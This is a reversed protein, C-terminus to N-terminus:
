LNSLYMVNCLLLDVKWIGYSKGLYIKSFGYASISPMFGTEKVGLAPVPLNPRSKQVVGFGKRNAQWLPPRDPVALKKTKQANSFKSCSGFVSADITLIKIITTFYHYVARWVVTPLLKSEYEGVRMNKQHPSITRVPLVWTLCLASRPSLGTHLQVLCMAVSYGHPHTVTIPDDVIWWVIPYILYIIPNEHSNHSLTRHPWVWRSADHCRVGSPPSPRPAVQRPSRSTKFQHHIM